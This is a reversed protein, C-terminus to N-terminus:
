AKVFLARAQEKQTLDIKHIEALVDVVAMLGNFMQEEKDGVQDKFEDYVASKEFANEILALELPSYGTRDIENKAIIDKEYVDLDILQEGSRCTMFVYPWYMRTRKLVLAESVLNGVACGCTDGHKLTDNLYAKVLVNVSHEFDRM